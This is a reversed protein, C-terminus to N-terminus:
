WNDDSVNEIVPETKEGLLHGFDPRDADTDPQRAARPVFRGLAAADGVEDLMHQELPRRRPGGLVDRLRNIRDAPLEIREGRLFVGAVVDLHEVFVQRQRHVHQRVDHQIRRETGAIDLALLLDHEFLDLHDLVRGVVEHVLQERLAEPFVM